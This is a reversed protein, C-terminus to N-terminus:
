TNTHKPQIFYLSNTQDDTEGLEAGPNSMELFPIREYIPISTQRESDTGGFYLLDLIYCVWTTGQLFLFFTSFHLSGLEEGNYGQM